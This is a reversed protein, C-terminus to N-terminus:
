QMVTVRRGEIKFRVGKTKQLMTLVESINKERSSTAYFKEDPVPGLYQVEIDYWRSLQLMVSRINENNFRFYGNKWAIAEQPDVDVASLSNGKLVSQQGPKLLLEQRSGHPVTGSLSVKVAGELLTTTTESGDDYASINFHTGIDEVIQNKLIVKFPQADNHVVEFYAEGSVKVTRDKGKFSVPFTISSMADLWVRTGDPLVLPYPSQEGVATSLTNYTVASHTDAGSTTYTIANQSSVGITTNGQQALQGSLGMTLIIKQGNALTLTAQNRGPLIDNAFYPVEENNKYIMFYSGVSIALVISAAVAIRPWITRIKAPSRATQIRRWLEAKIIEPSEASLQTWDTTGPMLRNLCANYQALEEDTATNNNVKDVLNNFSKIDMDGASYYTLCM